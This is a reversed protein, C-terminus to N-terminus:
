KITVTVANKIANATDWKGNVRAAIAVKYTKGPTLNKPSTYVTGTINQTQVRWKGALYVAIGYRDADEVEDWTFRIQHYKKSYEIKINDPYTLFIRKYTNKGNNEIEAFEGNGSIVIAPSNANVWGEGNTLASEEEISKLNEGLNLTNLKKFDIFMDTINSITTTDFSSIDLSTLSSCGSFMGNLGRRLFYSVNSTNFNRLDLSTLSSCGSFMDTILSVNGTDFSSVDLDSLGSCDKFMKSMDTVNSTDFGSVNVESLKNCGRFMESMNTVNSTDFSSLDLETLNTCECFMYRMNAVKSTDINSVDLSTLSECGLFM